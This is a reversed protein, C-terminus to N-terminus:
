HRLLLSGWGDMKEYVGASRLANWYIATNIAIVPKNLWLEAWGALRAMALNTGVQLICDVDDSNVRIIAEKLEAETVKAIDVPSKCKLGTLAGIEFGSEELFGAVRADGVPQYPTVVGLRRAGYLKLAEVCAESGMTVPLKTRTEINKKLERSKQLGDWFTEASIGLVIHDPECSMLSELAGDQAAVILEILRRFDDDNNLPINSIAIRVIHNTVGFPRMGDFEPQVSTNTSPVLVGFKKRWGLSDVM